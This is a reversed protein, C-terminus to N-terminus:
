VYEIRKTEGFIAASANPIADPAIPRAAVTNWTAFPIRSMMEVTLKEVKVMALDHHESM